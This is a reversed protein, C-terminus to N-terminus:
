STMKRFEMREEETLRYKEKFMEESPRVLLFVGFGIFFLLLFFYNQELYYFIICVLNAGELLGSRLIISSRYHELKSHLGGRISKAEDIRKSFLISSVTISGLMLVPAILYFPSSMEWGFSIESGIMLYSIVLAILVQGALLAYYFIYISKFENQTSVRETAM